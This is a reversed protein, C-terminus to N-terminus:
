VTTGAALAAAGTLEGEEYTADGETVAPRKYAAALFVLAADEKPTCEANQALDFACTSVNWASVIDGAGYRPLNMNAAEEMDPGSSPQWWQITGYAKKKFNLSADAEQGM